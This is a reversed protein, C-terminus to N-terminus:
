LDVREHRHWTVAERLAEENTWGYVLIGTWYVAAGITIYCLALTALTLIAAWGTTAGWLRWWLWLLALLFLTM